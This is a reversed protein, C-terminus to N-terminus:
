YYKSFSHEVGLSDFYAYNNNLVYLAIWHTGIGFYKDLNILYAGNNIGDNIERIFVMLDLDM